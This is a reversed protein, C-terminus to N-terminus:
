SNRLVLTDIYNGALTLNTVKWSGVGLLGQKFVPKSVIVPFDSLPTKLQFSILYKDPRSVVADSFNYNIENSTVPSGDQWKLNKNLNFTWIKGSDSAEWSAAIGPQAKGTKDTTTLGVGIMKAISEPLNDPTYEGVIGIKQS